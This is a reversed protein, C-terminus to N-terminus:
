KDDGLRLCLEHRGSRRVFGAEKVNYEINACEVCKTLGDAFNEESKVKKIELEGNAGRDQVWLERAEIRRM